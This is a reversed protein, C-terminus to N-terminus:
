LLERLKAKLLKGTSTAPLEEMVVYDSPRTYPALQPEVYARLADVDISHRPVPQVFAVVEENGAVPRGLVAALAVDPHSAVVAEVEPPYVNFGSRIILEKLRGVVYLQGDDTLRGLDGSKLWGEPTVMAATSEPDRYYGKMILRGRVWIEGVEGAPLAAGESDAIRVEVGPLPPGSSDDAAPRDIETTSVTPSSETLGYGNHLPTRWMAEVRAKLDLDLPAGGASLYRLHPAPLDAGRLKALAMLRAYMQPVGQFVTVGDEALARAVEEPDFRAVLDLRAGRTLTGLLVSALGFVHSIPLVGYVRDATNVGRVESSRGAIFMLNDHTLMVGKPAGTTGSTYILATVQQAPDDSVPERDTENTVAILAGLPELEPAATADHREAHAAADTSVEAAYLSVCPRCHERITDIERASLRANLPVAWARLRAAALVSVAGALSNELVVMVRDGAGVGRASLLGAVRDVDADLEAFSRRGLPDSAAIREPGAGAWYALPEDIWAFRDREVDPAARSATTM